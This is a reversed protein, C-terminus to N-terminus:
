VEGRAWSHPGRVCKNMKSSDCAAAVETKVAAEAHEDGPGGM